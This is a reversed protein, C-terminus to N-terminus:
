RRSRRHRFVGQGAGVYAAGRAWTGSPIHYSWVHDLNVWEAAPFGFFTKGGATYLRDGIRAFIHDHNGAPMKPQEDGTSTGLSSLTLSVSM